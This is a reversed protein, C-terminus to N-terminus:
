ASISASGSWTRDRSRAAHGLSPRNKTRCGAMQWSTPLATPLALPFAARRSGVDGGTSIPTRGFARPGNGTRACCWGAGNITGVTFILVVNKWDRRGVEYALLGLYLGLHLLASGCDNSLRRLNPNHEIDHYRAELSDYLPLFFQPFQQFLYRALM